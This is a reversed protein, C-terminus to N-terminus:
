AAFEGEGHVQERVGLLLMDPDPAEQVLWQFAAEEDDGAAAPCADCDFPLLHVACGAQLLRLLDHRLLGLHATPPYRQFQLLLKKLKPLQGAELLQAAAWVAADPSGGRPGRPICSIALTHLQGLCNAACDSQLLKGASEPHMSGLNAALCLVRVPQTAAAVAQLVESSWVGVMGPM